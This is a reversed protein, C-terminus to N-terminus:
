NGWFMEVAPRVGQYAELREAPIPNDYHDTMAMSRHGVFERLVQESLLTRMRTNYTYRLCHVTLRRAKYDIGAKELGFRFRDLLYYSAVPKGNYPFVLGPFEPTHPMLSLWRKLMNMTIEPVIVARSRTDEATAKKLLGIEGLDDVARDIVLGSRPLYIQETHLARVEGSRLGASVTLCFLTGFMLADRDTEQHVRSPRKWIRILEDADWPFLYALEEGSLTDQRRGNRRFPEFEPIIELIGSRRAERMILRLTYLVTNRCSNSLRQELLFDEVETPTIDPFRYRGFRPLIYRTLHRRHQIVTQRKLVKGKAAWRALHPAGETFMDGAFDTVTVLRAATKKKSQTLEEKLLNELFQVAERKSSCARGCSRIIRKENESFWYYWFTGNPRARKFLHYKGVSVSM